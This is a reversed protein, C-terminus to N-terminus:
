NLTVDDQSKQEQKVEKEKRRSEKRKEKLWEYYEPHMAKHIFWLILGGLGFLFLCIAPSLYISEIMSNGIM